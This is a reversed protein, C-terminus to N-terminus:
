GPPETPESSGGEKYFPGCNVLAGCEITLDIYELLVALYELIVTLQDLCSNLLTNWCVNKFFKRLPM